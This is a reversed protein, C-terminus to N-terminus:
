GRGSTGRGCRWGCGPRRPRSSTSRRRRCSGPTRPRCSSAGRRPPRWASAGASGTSADSLLVPSAATGPDLSRGTELVMGGGYWRVRRERERRRPKRMDARGTKEARAEPRTRAAAASPPQVVKWVKTVPEAAGAGAPPAEAGVPATPGPPAAEPRRGGPAGGTAAAGPASRGNASTILSALRVSAVIAKQCFSSLIQSSSRGSSRLWGNKREALSLVPMPSRM